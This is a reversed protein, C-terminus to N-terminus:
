PALYTIKYKFTAPALWDITSDGVQAFPYGFNNLPKGAQPPNLTIDRGIALKIRYPDIGGWYYAIYEATKPDELKLNEVLMAKRVDAPDVPVWGYGPEYFEAWCHQYGTIDEQAKKGLRIGFVERAPVGSARALAVFVSSIDTCKGGLKHLLYYVDGIGCGPTEPDRYMNTYTWEYIARVKALVSNKDGTIKDALNKVEGDVPGLSTAGLYPQFFARDLGPERAPFDRRIVEKREAAFSLSLKRSGANKDWAAFLISNGHQPDTYVAAESYDGTVKINSIFQDSDSVPYPIWLKVVKGREQGSLDFDMSIIGSRSAASAGQAALILYIFLLVTSCKKM